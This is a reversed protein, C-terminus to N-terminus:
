EVGSLPYELTLARLSGNPSVYVLPLARFRYQWPDLAVSHGGAEVRLRDTSWDPLGSLRLGATADLREGDLVSRDSTNGLRVTVTRDTPATNALWLSEPTTENVSVSRAERSRLTRIRGDAFVYLAFEPGTEVAAGDAVYPSPWCAVAVVARDTTRSLPRGHCSVNLEGEIGDEQRVIRNFVAVRESEVAHDVMTQATFTEPREPTAQLAPGASCGALVLLLCVALPSWRRM